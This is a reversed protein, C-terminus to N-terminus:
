QDLSSDGCHKEGCSKDSELVGEPEDYGGQCCMADEIHKM